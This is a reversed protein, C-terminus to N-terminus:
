QKKKSKKSAKKVTVSRKVVTVNGAKDTASVRITYTGGKRYAHEAQRSKARAGDGFAVVVRTVGSPKASGVRADNAKVRVKQLRGPSRVGAISFTVKPPTADVKLLGPKSVYVQGRRDTATVKWAHVGDALATTLPLRTNTTQGVAVNDITATYTIPGWLDFSPSWALQPKRAKRFRQTTSTSLIGPLRDFGGYVLKRGDGVGQIFVAVADGVRDVALDLGGSVDVPGLAPDSFESNPSAPPVTRKDLVVDYFAGQVTATLPTAGHLFAVYGDNNEAFDGVPQPAVNNPPSIGTAPFFTDDHLVSVFTGKTASGTVALGEGRGNMGVMASDAQDGGFGLGDVQVAPEFQSGVLRRALTHTKGDDFRLRFTVWAFSSDDEIDIRPDTASSPDASHGNLNDISLDQPAASIRNEFIRRGYVHGAEGWVVAATGDASVAIDSANGPTGADRAPEIDITDPLGSFTTTKGDLRAVRVDAASAGSSTFSTYAVGGISMDISPASGPGIVQPGTFAPAGAGRVAGVIQGGSVYVVAVRGGDSVAVAPDSGPADLGADVREPPQFVGSVLRSVFVHNTGGDSRVYAVAGSGDRAIDLDGVKQVAGADIVEAKFFAAHAPAAASFAAITLPLITTRLRM